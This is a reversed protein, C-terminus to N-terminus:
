PNTVGVWGWGSGPDCSSCLADPMVLAAPPAPLPCSNQWAPGLGPSGSGFIMGEGHQRRSPGASHLPLPNLNGRLPKGVPSVQLSVRGSGLGQKRKRIGGGAHSVAERVTGRCPVRSRLSGAASRSGFAMQNQAPGASPPSLWCWSLGGRCIPMKPAAPGLAWLQGQAHIQAILLTCGSGEFAKRSIGGRARPSILLRVPFSAVAQVSALVPCATPPLPHM